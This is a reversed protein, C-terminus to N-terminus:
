GVGSGGVSGTGVVFYRRASVSEIGSDRHGSRRRVRHASVGAVGVTKGIERQDLIRDLGGFREDRRGVRRRRRRGVGGRFCEDVEVGLRILRRDLLRVAM